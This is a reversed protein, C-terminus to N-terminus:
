KKQEIKNFQPEPDRATYRVRNHVDYTVFNEGIRPMELCSPDELTKKADNLGASWHANKTEMSFEIDKYHGESRSKKYILHIVNTRGGITHREIDKFFPDADKINQPVRELIQNMVDRMEHIHRVTQTINRTRSSYQIDKIREEVQMINKPLEGVASWLDVQFVIIDKGKSEEMVYSLPTNSVCGGDWYFEGDIETAPFGPPLSGSAIFHEAKLVQYHNDFYIFNGTRVNTAGLSVRMEGSKNIRDFDALRELTLKMPTTDYYSIDKPNGWGPAWLKPTFFNKQGFMIAETAAVGGFCTKSIFDFKEALEPAFWKSLDNMKQTFGATHSAPRCITKWFERLKEVRKEPANGAIICSNLAGISIGAVWTPQINENSLGEYVGAQYSGLAGGGQCILVTDKYDPRILNRNKQSM